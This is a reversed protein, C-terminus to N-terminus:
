LGLTGQGPRGHMALGTAGPRQPVYLSSNETITNTQEVELTLSSSQVFEYDTM